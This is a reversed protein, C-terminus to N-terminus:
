SKRDTGEYFWCFGRLDSNNCILEERRLGEPRTIAPRAIKVSQRMPVTQKMKELEMATASTDDMELPRM